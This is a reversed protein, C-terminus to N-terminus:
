NQKNYCWDKLFCKDCLPKKKCLNKCHEVILAHYEKYIELNKPINNEILTKLEDYDIKEYNIIGLRYFLRKTYADVVFTTKDLGYILITDATERGIGKISLLFDRDIEEKRVKSVAKAFEKLRKIKLNYFGAPKILTKLTDKDTNLIDELSLVKANILNELAKEVNKWSTNQTLIAGISVEDFKNMYGSLPWWNQKGYASSLQKYLNYIM